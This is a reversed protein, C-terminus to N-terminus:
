WFPTYSRTVLPVLFRDRCASLTLLTEELRTETQWSAWQPCGGRSGARLSASPDASRLLAAEECLGDFQSVVDGSRGAGTLHRIPITELCASKHGGTLQRLSRFIRSSIFQTRLAKATHITARTTGPM